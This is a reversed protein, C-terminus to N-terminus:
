TFSRTSFLVFTIWLSALIAWSFPLKLSSKRRWCREVGFGVLGLGGALVLFLGLENMPLFLGSIMFLLLDGSGLIERVLRNYLFIAGMGLSLPILSLPIFTQKICWLIGLFTLGVCLALPFQQERSDFYIIALSVLLSAALVLLDAADFALGEFAQIM